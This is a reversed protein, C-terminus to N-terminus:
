EKTIEQIPRGDPHTAGYHRALPSGAPRVLPVGAPLLRDVPNDGRELVMSGDARHTVTLKGKPRFEKQAATVASSVLDALEDQRAARDVKQQAAKTLVFRVTLGGIEDPACEGGLLELDPDIGIERFPELLYAASAAPNANGMDKLALELGAVFSSERGIEQRAM